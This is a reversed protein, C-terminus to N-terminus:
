PQHSARLSQREFFLPQEPSLLSADVCSTVLAAAREAIVDIAEIM